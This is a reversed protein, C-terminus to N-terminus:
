VIKFIHAGGKDLKVYLGHDNLAQRSWPYRQGDLQDEFLVTHDGPDGAADFSLQVLGEALGGGVNVVVLRLGGHGNWRWSLLDTTSRGSAPHVDLLAWDGDHFVEDNAAALLKDYFSAVAENEPSDSWRGLQVPLCDTRGEFQGQYFFRLGPLTGIVVAAARVRGGFAAASRPEDHNEIFRASRRQYDPDAKLHWRIDAASSSMLRDYLRKDYTFDFGLQQLRWEMDWYVEALLIFKPVAARAATWFEGPPMAPTRLYDRWTSSFVDSLVLMAMDCRAGDAHRALRELTDVMAARTDANSYDLQAVDSWPPYYPDRGCAIFRVDGSPTDIARFAGPNDRFASEDAQVYRNPHSQIWPHDFGTHNPIFDVM